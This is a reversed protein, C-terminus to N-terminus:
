TSLTGTKRTYDKIWDMGITGSFLFLITSPKIDFVFVSWFLAVAGLLVALALARVLRWTREWEYCNGSIVRVRHRLLSGFATIHTCSIALRHLVARCHLNRISLWLCLASLATHIFSSYRILCQRVRTPICIYIRRNHQHVPSVSVPTYSHPPELSELRNLGSIGTITSKM